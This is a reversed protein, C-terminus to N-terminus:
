PSISVRSVSLGGFSSRPGGPIDEAFHGFDLIFGEVSESETFRSLEDGNVVVVIEGANRTVRATALGSLGLEGRASHESSTNTGITVKRTGTDGTWGDVFGVSVIPEQNSGTLRFLFEQMASNDEAEWGFDVEAVFDALSPLRSSLFIHSWEGDGDTSVVRPAISEVVLAGDAVSFNWDTAEELCVSWNRGLSGDFNEAFPTSPVEPMETCSDAPCVACGPSCLVPCVAIGADPEMGTDVLGGGADGGVGSDSGSDVVAEGGADNAGPDQPFRFVLADCALLLTLLVIWTWRRWPGSFFARGFQRGSTGLDRTTQCPRHAQAVFPGVSRYTESASYKAFALLLGRSKAGM